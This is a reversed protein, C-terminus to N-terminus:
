VVENRFIKLFYTCFFVSLVLCFCTAFKVGFFAIKKLFQMCFNYFIASVADSGNKMQTCELNHITCLINKCPLFSCSFSRDCYSGSYDQGGGQRGRRWEM